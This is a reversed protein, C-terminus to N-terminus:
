TVRVNGLFANVRERLDEASHELATAAAQVREAHTRTEVSANSVSIISRSVEATGDAAAHTARSIERTAAGQTEIASSITASITDIDTITRAIKAIAEVAEDTATRVAGIQATIQETASATQRSLKKVEQAVVAFGRGAEGARAAEITANLALLNTQSAIQGILRVVDSIQAVAQTLSRVRDNTSNAVAVADRTVRVARSVQDTIEGISSTMEHGAAAVTEVNGSARRSAEAVVESQHATEKAAASMKDATVEMDKTSTLMASLAFVVEGNFEAILHDIVRGRREKAEQEHRREEALVEACVANDRFVAVAKAMAGLEDHRDLHPIEGGIEGRALVSMTTTIKELPGTITRSLVLRLGALFIVTVVLVAVAVKIIAEQLEAKETDISLRSSLVAIVDGKKLGMAEHCTYCAEQDAGHTVGLRIPLSLRYAGDVFRGVEEGTALAEEDVADRASKARLKPDSSQVWATVQPSWSSWLTGPYDENRRGFWANFVGVGISDPDELRRAMASIILAKLSQLENLSTTHVAQGMQRTENIAFVTAAALALALVGAGVIVMFRTKITLDPLM